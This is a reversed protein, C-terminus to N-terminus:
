WLSWIFLIWGVDSPSIHSTQHDEADAAATAVTVCSAEDQFRTVFWTNLRPTQHTNYYSFAYASHRLGGLTTFRFAHKLPQQMPNVKRRCTSSSCLPPPPRNSPNAWRWCSKPLLSPKLSRPCSKSRSTLPCLPTWLWCPPWSATPCCVNQSWVSFVCFFVLNKKKKPTVKEMWTVTTSIHKTIM